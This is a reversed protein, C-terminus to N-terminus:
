AKILSYLYSLKRSLCLHFFSNRKGCFFKDKNGSSLLERMFSMGFSKNQMCYVLQVPHGLTLSFMRKCLFRGLPACIGFSLHVCFQISKMIFPSNSILLSYYGPFIRRSFCNIRCAIPEFISNSARVSTSYM